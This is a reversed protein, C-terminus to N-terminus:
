IYFLFLIILIILIIIFIIIYLNNNNKDTNIDLKNLTEKSLKNIDKNNYIIADMDLKCLNKCEISGNMHKDCKEKCKIFSLKKDNTERYLDPFYSITDNWLPPIKYDLSCIDKGRSYIFPLTCKKCNNYCQTGDRIEDSGMWDKCVQYCLNNTENPGLNNNEKLFKVVSYCPNITYDCKTTKDM